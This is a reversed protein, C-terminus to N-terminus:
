QMCDRKTSVMSVFDGDIERVIGGLVGFVIMVISEGIFLGYLLFRKRKASKAKWESVEANVGDDDSAKDDDDNDVVVDDNDVVLV